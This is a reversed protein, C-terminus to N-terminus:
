TEKERENGNERTTHKREDAERCIRVTMVILTTRVYLSYYVFLRLDVILEVYYPWLNSAYVITKM